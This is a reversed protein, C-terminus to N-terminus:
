QATVAARPISMQRRTNYQDIPGDRSEFRGDLLASNVQPTQDNRVHHYHDEEITSYESNTPTSRDGQLHIHM